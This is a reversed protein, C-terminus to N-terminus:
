TVGGVNATCYVSAFMVLMGASSPICHGCPADDQIDRATAVRQSPSGRCRKMSAGDRKPPKETSHEAAVGGRSRGQLVAQVLQSGNNITIATCNDVGQLPTHSVQFGEQHTLIAAGCRLCGCRKIADDHQRQHTSWPRAHHQVSRHALLKPDVELPAPVSATNRQSSKTAPM